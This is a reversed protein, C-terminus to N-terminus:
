AVLVSLGRERLIAVVGAPAGSDTILCDLEGLDALRVPGRREFKSGDVLAIRREAHQLIRREVGAQGLETATLGAVADLGSASFLALDVRYQAVVDEAEPGLWSSGDPRLVGGLMVVRCQASRTLWAATYVGNTIVTLGTRGALHPVVAGTTTGGALLVTTHDPVLDAAQRAIRAVSGTRDPDSGAPADRVAAGGHVRHLLGTRALQALDRRITSPSVGLEAALAAVDGSGHARLHELLLRQRDVALVATV